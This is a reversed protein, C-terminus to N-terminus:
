PMSLTHIFNKEHNALAETLAPSELTVPLGNQTTEISVGDIVALYFSVSMFVLIVVYEAMANGKQHLRKQQYKQAKM